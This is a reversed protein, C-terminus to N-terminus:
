RMRWMCKRNADIICAVGKGGRGIRQQGLQLLDNSRQFNLFALLVEAAQLLQIGAGIHEAHVQIGDAQTLLDFAHHGFQVGAGTCNALGQM